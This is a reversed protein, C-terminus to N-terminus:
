KLAKGREKEDKLRVDFGLINFHLNIKGALQLERLSIIPNKRNIHFSEKDEDNSRMNTKSCYM